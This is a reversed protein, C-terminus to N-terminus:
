LLGSNIPTVTYIYIRRKYGVGDMYPINVSM